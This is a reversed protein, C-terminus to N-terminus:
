PLLVRVRYYRDPTATINSDTMSTITGSGNGGSLINTQGTVLWGGNAYSGNATGTTYDLVNTRSAIGPQYTSDGNAGLYTVVVNTNGSVLQEVVSIVHLYAAASTPNFGAMFKNTNSMGDGTYSASPGCLACNNSLGYAQQWWVFPDFVNITGTTTNSGGANAVSQTVTYTGPYDYTYSPNEATSTGVGDGFTWSWSTPSGTSTDFFNVTLPAAGGAPNNTFSAVPPAVSPAVILDVQGVTSTSVTYSFSPSPTTGIAVGNYTLAGGYTFLTYTTNTFGGANSVNLTGGLTLNGSVKTLDSSTGLQYQLVATSSAVLNNSVTLTGPSNGPSLTGNITVPGAVVGTGGLTGGPVITVSGSGTGSGTTNDVLLTGNTVTLQGSYNPSASKFMLFAGGPNVTLGGAGSLAGTYINTGSTLGLTSASVVIISNSFTLSGQILTNTSGGLTITGAGLENGNTDTISAQANFFSLLNNTPPTALGGISVLNTNGTSNTITIGANYLTLTNTGTTPASFNSDIIHIATVDYMCFTGDGNTRNLFNVADLTVNSIPSEPVGYMFGTINGPGNTSSNGVATLNSITINQYVPTDGVSQPGNAAADEPTVDIDNVPAQIVNYDMYFAIPFNVNTMTLDCYKLNQVLGGTGREAKIKIGYETGNWWCNSVIVNNVGDQIDSGMSVGHGTGFHCNTVTIDTSVAGSGGIELNDDGTSITCNNILVNTSSIDSGDTNHSDFPANITVGQITVSIDNKKLYITFVPQNQLTVNQILVRTCHDFEVFVPRSSTSSPYTAWWNTGQGDITGPGSIEVDTLTAGNIFPTTGYGDSQWTTLPFMQLMAGSDIQLNVHSAMTIPGCEYNTYIGVPPIEVTGGTAGGVISASAANIAAQIAATSNSVGNGLAGGAFTPNTVSFILNTNIVPLPVTTARASVALVLLVAGATTRCWSAALSRQHWRQNGPAQLKVARAASCRMGTYKKMM